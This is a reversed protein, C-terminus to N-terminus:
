MYILRNELYFMNSLIISFLLSVEEWTITLESISLFRWFIRFDFPVKIAPVFFFHFFYM